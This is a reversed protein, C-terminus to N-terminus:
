IVSNPLVSFGMASVLIFMVSKMPLTDMFCMSPNGISRPKFNQYNTCLKTGGASTIMRNLTSVPFGCTSWRKKHPNRLTLSVLNAKSSTPQSHCSLAPMKPASSSVSSCDTMLSIPQDTAMRKHNTTSLSSVKSLLMKQSKPKKGTIVCDKKVM